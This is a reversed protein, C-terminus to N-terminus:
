LVLDGTEYGMDAIPVSNLDSLRGNPEIADIARLFSMSHVSVRPCIHTPQHKAFANHAIKAALVSIITQDCGAIYITLLNSSLNNFRAKCEVAAPVAAPPVLAM